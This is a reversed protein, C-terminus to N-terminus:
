KGAHLLSFDEPYSITTTGSTESLGYMNFLPIDLSAFYDISQQKLPAAGYFFFKCEDLGIAQKIRKLILFNALSYMYGPEKGTQQAIVKSYGHGKAWGSLSQAIAPKTSAIEKLKDEFKEWVRPVAMFLTPRAWQLSEVLTGQLADPKAFFLQCQFFVQNTIDFQLGAIHSLPLYSVLKMEEPIIANEGTLGNLVDTAASSGNFVINDHSLMVGKPHGTTGSTYILVACQGPKITSVIQDIVGDNIKKGLELFAKWSYIRSDKSIDDPITFNGWAVIAKVEPLKDLISYYLKLQALTDVSIVQAESHEAQYHCAEAGNTTYVGSVVNNHLMSGQYSIAWEPSNFGMINVSKRQDVGLFHLSKAFAMSDNYYQNWTWTLEKKDRMVKLSNNDKRATVADRFLIPLTTPKINASMGTASMKVPLEANM